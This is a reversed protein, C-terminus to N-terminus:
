SKFGPVLGDSFGDGKFGKEVCNTLSRHLVCIRGPRELPTQETTGLGAQM